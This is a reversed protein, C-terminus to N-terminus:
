EEETTEGEDQRAREEMERVWESHAEADETAPVWNPEHRVRKTRRLVRVNQDEPTNAPTCFDEEPRPEPSPVRQAPGPEEEDETEVDEPAPRKDTKKFYQDLIHRKVTGNDNRKLHIVTGYEEIRRLIAQKHADMADKYWDQRPNDNSTFIVTQPCWEVHGNKINIPQDTYNDTIKLFTHISMKKWDFDDFLVTPKGTYGLLFDSSTYEVREPNHESANLTKGTGTEGWLFILKINGERKPQVQRHLAEIGKHYKIYAVPHEMAIERNSAGQLIKKSVEELDSRKGQEQHMPEGFIFAEKDEKTCYEINEDANGKASEFHVSIPLPFRKRFANEIAGAKKRPEFELYGQFHKRETVEGQEKGMIMYTPNLEVRLDELNYDSWDKDLPLNVTVCM